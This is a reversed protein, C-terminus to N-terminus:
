PVTWVESSSWSALRPPPLVPPTFLKHHWVPAINWSSASSRISSVSSSETLAILGEADTVAGTHARTVWGFMENEFLDAPIAGGNVPVFPHSARNSRSHLLRAHLQKGVGTPGTILVEADLCSVTNIIDVARLHAESRGVRQVNGGSLEGQSAM